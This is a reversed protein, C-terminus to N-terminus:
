FLCTLIALIAFTILITQSITQKHKEKSSWARNLLAPLLILLFICAIGAGYKLSLYFIRLSSFSLALAFAYMLILLLIRSQKSGKLKFSDILFDVLGLSVGLFSTTISAFSFLLAFIRLYSDKFLQSMPVIATHDFLHATTLSIEGTFPVCGIVVAQWILYIALTITSGCFIAKRILKLDQNLYTVISPLTGHFAFSTIILSLPALSEKWSIRALYSPQIHPLSLYILLGYFVFLAITLIGNIRGVANTGFYLFPLSILIFLVSGYNSNLSFGEEILIGVGKTYATILSFFLLIYFLFVIKMMNSGLLNNTLTTFNSGKKSNVLVQAFVFGSLIMIAWSILFLVAAPIFGSAATAVPLGLMGAGISTGLILLVAIIFKM